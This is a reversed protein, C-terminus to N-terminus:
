HPRAAEIAAAKYTDNMADAVTRADYLSYYDGSVKTVSKGAAIARKLGLVSCYKYKYWREQAARTLEGQNNFIPSPDTWEPDEYVCHMTADYLGTELATVREELTAM